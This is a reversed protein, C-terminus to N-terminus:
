YGVFIEIGGKETQVPFEVTVAKMPRRLYERLGEDLGLVFREAADFQLLAVLHPNLEEPYGQSISPVATPLHVTM